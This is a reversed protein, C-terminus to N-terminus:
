QRKQEVKDLDGLGMAALVHRSVKGCDEFMVFDVVFDKGDGNVVGLCVGFHQPEARRVVFNRALSTTVRWFDWRVTPPENFTNTAENLDFKASGVISDGSLFVPVSTLCRESANDPM